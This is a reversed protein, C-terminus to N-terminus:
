APVWLAAAVFCALVAVVGLVTWVTADRPTRTVTLAHTLIRPDRVNM